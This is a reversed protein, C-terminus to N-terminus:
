QPDDDSFARSLPATVIDGWINMSRKASMEGAQVAATLADRIGVVDERKFSSVPTDGVRDAIWKKAAGKMDRTSKGLREHVELYRGHWVTWSEGKPAEPAKPKRVAITFDAATLKEAKAITAKEAIWERARGEGRANHPFEKPCDLWPRSGDSLSVRGRWLKRTEDWLITGTALRPM